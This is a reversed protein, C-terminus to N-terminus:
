FSVELSGPGISRLRARRRDDRGKGEAGSRKAHVAFLTISTILLAGGGILLGRSTWSYANGRRLARDYDDEVDEFSKRSGTEPNFNRSLRVARDEEREALGAFVGGATGLSVAGFMTWWAAAQMPAMREPVGPPLADELQDGELDATAKTANPDDADVVDGVGAATPPSEPDTEPDTESETETEDPVDPEPGASPEPEPVASNEPEPDREASADASLEPEAEAAPEPPGHLHASASDPMLVAAGLAVATALSVHATRADLRAAVKSAM